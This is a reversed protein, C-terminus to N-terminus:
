SSPKQASFNMMGGFGLLYEAVCFPAVALLLFSYLPTKGFQMRPRYNCAGVLLNQLSLGSQLHLATSVKIETFGAQHLAKQLGIKSVM